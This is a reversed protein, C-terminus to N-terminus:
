AKKREATVKPDEPPLASPSSQMIPVKKAAAAAAQQAQTTIHQQQQHTTQQMSSSSPQNIIPPVNGGRHQHSSSSSSTGGAGKEKMKQKLFHDLYDHAKKWYQDGVTARLRSKMSTTLSVFAPDRAKNREYCEKIQAKAKTHM